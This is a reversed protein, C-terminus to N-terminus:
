SPLKHTKRIEEIILNGTKENYLRDQAFEALSPLLAKTAYDVGVEPTRSALDIRTDGARAGIIVHGRSLLGPARYTIRVVDDKPVEFEKNEELKKAVEIADAVEKDAAKSGPGVYLTLYSNWSGKKCGIIRDYYVVIGYGADLGRHVAFSWVVGILGEDTLPGM